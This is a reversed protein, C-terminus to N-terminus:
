QLIILIAFMFHSDFDGHFAEPRNTTRPNMYIPEGAWFHPPFLSNEDICTDVIYDTFHEVNSLANAM